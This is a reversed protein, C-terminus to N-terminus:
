NNQLELFRVRATNWDAALVEQRAVEANYTELALQQDSDELDDDEFM